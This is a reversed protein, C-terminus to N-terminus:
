LRLDRSELLRHPVQHNFVHWFLFVLLELGQPNIGIASPRPLRAKTSPRRCLGYHHYFFFCSGYTYVCTSLASLNGNFAGEVLVAFHNFSTEREINM